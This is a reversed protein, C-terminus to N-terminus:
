FIFLSTDITSGSFDSDIAAFFRGLGFRFCLAKGFLGPEEPDTQAEPLVCKVLKKSFSM